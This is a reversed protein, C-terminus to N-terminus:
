SIWDLMGGRQDLIHAKGFFYPDSLEGKIGVDKGGWFLPFFFEVEVRVEELVLLPIGVM